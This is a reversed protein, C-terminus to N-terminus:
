LNIKWTHSDTECVPIANINSYLKIYGPGIMLKMRDEFCHWEQKLERGGPM